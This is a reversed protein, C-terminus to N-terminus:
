KMMEKEINEDNNIMYYLYINLIGNMGYKM